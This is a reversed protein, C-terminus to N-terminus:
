KIIFRLVQTFTTDIVWILSAVVLVAVFVVGTNSVLEQKNPWSVKKLEAKVERLFKKSRSSNAKVVIEQAVMKKVDGDQVALELM